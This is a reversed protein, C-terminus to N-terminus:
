SEATFCIQLNQGRALAPGGMAQTFHRRTTTM